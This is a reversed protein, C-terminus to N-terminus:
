RPKLKYKRIKRDLRPRTLGLARCVEGKNWNFMELARAIENMEVENLPKIKYEERKDGKPAASPNYIDAPLCEKLIVNGRALLAARTLINELERVNGKWTYSLLVDMAEPDIKKINRHLNKNAKNLFYEVLVAIDEKRERLPPLDITIVKLRYYLDERFLNQRVLESLNRSTAAIIRTDVNISKEGGVREFTKEQIVRLLKTQVGLPIDGIEDLFITGENALEFRGKKLYTAGTFAGKEHGFLESELLTEVMATCNVPVFPKDSNASHYHMAKAVLEKGTGSEGQILVTAMTKSALGIVKFVEEMKKSKGIIADGAYEGYVERSLENLRANLEKDTVARKIVVELEDMNIPKSVYDFAGGQMAKITTEMDQYGTMLIVHIDRCCEKVTKMLEIGNIDPLRIDSLMIDPCERKIIELADTGNSATLVDYGSLEMSVKLFDLINKEDDVILIAAKGAM